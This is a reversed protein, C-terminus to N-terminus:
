RMRGGFLFNVLLTMFLYCVAFIALVRMLGFAPKRSETRRERGDAGDRSREAGGARARGASAAGDPETRVANGGSGNRIAAYAANLENMRRAARADEPHLDPHYRKALRHYAAKIEEESAGPPVGLVQYPDRAM